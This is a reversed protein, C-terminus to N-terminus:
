MVSGSPPTARPAVMARDSPATPEKTSDPILPIIVGLGYVTRRPSKHRFVEIGVGNGAAVSYSFSDRGSRPRGSLPGNPAINLWSQADVLRYTPSPDGTAAFKYVYQGLSAIM